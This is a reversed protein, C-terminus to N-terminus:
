KHAQRAPVTFYFAAGKGEAAEAWIKGGHREVIRRVTSLGVGTGPFEDPSHLRQFPHFLKGYFKMDFGEGNDKVFYATEGGQETAGFEVAANKTKKTFKWANELLNDIVERLLGADGTVCLNEAAKFKVARGPEVDLLRGAAERALASLDVKNFKIEQRMVRSLKLLDDVVEAMQRCGKRIRALYDSGGPGMLRGCEQELLASFGDIRRLPARLDHSASYTFAELEENALKLKETRAAVKEELKRRETIDRFNWVRGVIRDGIKQPLSFREFIRGDKFNVTDFSEEAPHAYLRKVEAIFGEPDTLQGLVCALLKEDDDSSAIDDPICWLQVFKQNKTVVRNDTDIVLIGDATSELTAHHLSLLKLLEEEAKRREAVEASLDDRSVTVSQLKATMSNFAGALQGIEDGARIRVRYSLEGAGIRTTGSILDAIPRGLIIKIMLACSLFAAFVTLVVILAALNREHRLTIALGALSFRISATGIKEAGAEAEQGGLLLSEESTRVSKRATIDAHYERDLPSVASEGGQFLLKGKADRIECYVADKQRLVSAALKSLNEVNGTLVWYESGATLSDLTTKARENLEDLFAAKERQLFYAALVIGLFLMLSGFLMNIKRTM